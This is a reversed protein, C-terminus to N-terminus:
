RWPSGVPYRGAAGCATARGGAGAPSTRRRSAPSVRVRQEADGVAVGASGSLPPELLDAAPQPVGARALLEPQLVVELEGLQVDTRVGLTASEALAQQPGQQGSGPLGPHQQGGGLVAVLWGAPGPLQVPAETEPVHQAVVAEGAVEAREGHEAPLQREVRRYRGARTVPCPRRRSGSPVMTPHRGGAAQQRQQEGQEHDAGRETAAGPDPGREGSCGSSVTVPSITTAVGSRPGSSVPGAM